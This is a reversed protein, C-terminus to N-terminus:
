NARTQKPAKLRYVIAINTMAMANTNALTVLKLTAASPVSFNTVTTIASTGNLTCTITHAGVAEYSTSDLSEALTLVFTGTSSSLPKVTVQIGVDSFESVSFTDSSPSNTTTAAINNTGGNWGGLTRVGPTQGIASLPIIFAALILTLIINKM